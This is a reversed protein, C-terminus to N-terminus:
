SDAETDMSRRRHDGRIGAGTGKRDRGDRWDRDEVVRQVRSNMRFEAGRQRAVDIAAHVAGEPRVLGANAEFAGIADSPVSFWPFRRRLAAADLEDTGLGWRRASALSGLVIESDPPGMLLMGCRHLLQQGSEIELSEFRGTSHQLLPVYEPHEFYAHRFIRSLGHSSGRPNAPTLQELGLVRAGSEAAARLAASGVAGGGVVILDWRQM